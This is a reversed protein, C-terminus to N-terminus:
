GARAPEAFPQAPHPPPRALLETDPSFRTYMPLLAAGLVRAKAGISGAAFEVPSLGARNFGDMAQALAKMLRARWASKLIGDVVVVEFDIVSAAAVAARALGEAATEAWHLFVIEAMQDEADPDSLIARGDLGAADLARELQVVSACHILQQPRGDPGTTAMPMSGIAAANLQDGRYLQGDIVLGGGVFTGLYLYLASNRSIGHGAAMEAACAASADNHLTVPLDIVQELEGAVDVDRWGDLAGPPMGLEVSWSYLEGPMAVGVGAIRAREHSALGAILEQAHSVALPMVVEYLPAPYSTERAAVIKGLFDVMIAETSRRGIKIGLAYVGSPNLAIPTHPQGVGGRVKEQKLLIGEQLLANVIVSAAQGSLGTARAIEAKSLAGSQRIASIILRENYARLRSTDGGRLGDIRGSEPGTRETTWPESQLL